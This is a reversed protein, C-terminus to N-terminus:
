GDVISTFFTRCAEISSYSAVAASRSPFNSPYLQDVAEIKKYSVEICCLIRIKKGRGESVTRRDNYSQMGPVQSSKVLNHFFAVSM